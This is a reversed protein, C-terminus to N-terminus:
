HAVEARQQRVVLGGRWLVPIQALAAQSLYMQRAVEWWAGLCLNLGCSLGPFGIPPAETYIEGVPRHRLPTGREGAFGPPGPPTDHRSRFSPQSLRDM